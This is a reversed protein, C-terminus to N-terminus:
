LLGSQATDIPMRQFDALKYQAYSSLIPSVLGFASRGICSSSSQPVTCVHHADVNVHQRADAVTTLSRSGWFWASCYMQQQCLAAQSAFSVRAEFQCCVPGGPAAVISAQGAM